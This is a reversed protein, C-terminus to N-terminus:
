FSGLSEDGASSEGDKDEFKAAVELGEALVFVFENGPEMSLAVLDGTVLVVFTLEIELGGEGIVHKRNM